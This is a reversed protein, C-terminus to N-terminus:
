DELAQRRRKANLVAAVAAVIGAVVLLGVAIGILPTRQASSSSDAATAATATAADHDHTQGHDHDHDADEGHDHDHAHDHDGHSHDHDHDDEGDHHHHGEVTTVSGGHDHDHTFSASGDLLGVNAQQASAAAAQVDADGVAFTLVAKAAKEEGATTSGIITVDVTHVGPESFVWNVHAHSHLPVFMSQPENNASTYIVQPGGFGGSQVFISAVGPGHHEGFEFTIGREFQQTVAPSQTSWGLWPVGAVQNQPVAWVTAGAPAGVFDYAPDDPVTIAAQDNLVFVADSFYRWVPPTATDDRFLLRMDDDVIVPGIDIHGADIVVPTSPPAITEDATVTQALDSHASQAGVPSLGGVAVSLALGTAGCLGVITRMWQARRQPLSRM